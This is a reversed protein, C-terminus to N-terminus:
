SPSVAADSQRGRTEGEGGGEGLGEAPREDDKECKRGRETARSKISRRRIIEADSRHPRGAPEAEERATGDARGRGRLHVIL